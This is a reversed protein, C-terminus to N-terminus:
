HSAIAVFRPSEKSSFLGHVWTCNENRVRKFDHTKNKCKKM